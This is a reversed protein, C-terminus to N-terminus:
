CMNVIVLLVIESNRLRFNSTASVNISLHSSHVSLIRQAILRISFFNCRYTVDYYLGALM